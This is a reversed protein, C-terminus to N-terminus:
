TVRYDSASYEDASKLIMTDKILLAMKVLM